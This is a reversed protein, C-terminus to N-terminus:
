DHLNYHDIFEFWNPRILANNTEVSFQYYMIVLCKYYKVTDLVLNTLM